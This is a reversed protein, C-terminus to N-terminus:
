SDGPDLASIAPPAEAPQRWAYFPPRDKCIPRDDHACYIRVHFHTRHPAGHVPQTIVRRVRMLLEPNAHEKVAQRLLLRKISNVVFIHQVDITPDCLLSEILAWNRAADFRYLGGWHKALGQNNLPVFVHPGLPAWRRDLLYFGLDVDRGSQHSVHPRFRGGGPRSLDGVTLQSSPYRFAVARAAREILRVLEETGFRSDLSSDKVRMVPGDGIRTGFQLRGRNPYGVSVSPEPERSSPAVTRRMMAIEELDQASPETHNEAHQAERMIAHDTVAPEASAPTDLSGPLSVMSTVGLASIWRVLRFRESRSALRKRARQQPPHDGM